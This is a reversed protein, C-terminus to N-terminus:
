VNRVLAAVAEAIEPHHQTLILSDGGNLLRGLPVSWCLRYNAKVTRPKVSVLKLHLFDASSHKPTLYLVFGDVEGILVGDAPHNGEFKKSM